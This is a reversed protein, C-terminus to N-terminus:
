FFGLANPSYSVLLNKTQQHDLMAKHTGASARNRTAVSAAHAPCRPLLQDARRAARGMYLPQRRADVGAGLRLGTM